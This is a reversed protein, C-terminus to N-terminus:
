KIILSDEVFKLISNICKQESDLDDIKLLNFTFLLGFSCAENKIKLAYTIKKNLPQRNEFM